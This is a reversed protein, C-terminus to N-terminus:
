EILGSRGRVDHGGNITSIYENIGINVYETDLDEEERLTHPATSGKEDGSTGSLQSELLENDSKIAAAYRAEDNEM